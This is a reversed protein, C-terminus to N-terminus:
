SRGLAKNYLVRLGWVGVLITGAAVGLTLANVGIGPIEATVLDGALEFGEKLAM